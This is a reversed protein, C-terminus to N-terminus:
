AAVLELSAVERQAPAGWGGRSRAAASAPTSTSAATVKATGGRSGASGGGARAPGHDGPAPAGPRRAHPRVVGGARGAGVPAAGRPSRPRAGARAGAAARGGGADPDAHGTLRDDLGVLRLPGLDVWANRLVEVGAAALAAAVLEGGVFHDHNGLVAVRRGPLGRLVETVLGLHRRGRGVYDGTLVVVAPSEAAALAVARRLVDPRTVLGFHLDTLHVVRLPAALGPLPVVHRRVVPM